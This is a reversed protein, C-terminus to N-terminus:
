THPPRRAWQSGTEQTAPPVGATGVGVRTRVAGARTAHMAAPSPVFGSPHEMLKTKKGKTYRMCVNNTTAENAKTRRAAKAGQSQAQLKHGNSISCTGHYNYQWHQEESVAM